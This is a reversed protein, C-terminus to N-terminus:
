SSVRMTMSIIKQNIFPKHFLTEYLNHHFFGKQISIKKHIHNCISLGTQNYIILQQLYTDYKIVSILMFQLYQSNFDRM